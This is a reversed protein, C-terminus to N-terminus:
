IQNTQKDNTNSEENRQCSRSTSRVILDRGRFFPQMM